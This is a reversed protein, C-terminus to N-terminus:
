PFHPDKTITRDHSYSKNCNSRSRSQEGDFASGYNRLQLPLSHTKCSIYTNPTARYYIYTARYRHPQAQTVHIMAPPLTQFSTEALGHLIPLVLVGDNGANAQKASCRYWLRGVGRKMAKDQGPQRAQEHLPNLPGQDSGQIRRLGL